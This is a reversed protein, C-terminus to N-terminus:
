VIFSRTPPEDSILLAHRPVPMVRGQADTVTVTIHLVGTAAQGSLISTLLLWLAAVGVARM